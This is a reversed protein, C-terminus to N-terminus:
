TDDFASYLDSWWKRYKSPAMEFHKKFSINFHSLSKFGQIHAIDLISKAGDELMKKSADMKTKLFYAKLTMGMYQKFIRSIHVYSYHFNSLIEALTKGSNNKDHLANQIEKIREPANKLPNESEPSYIHKLIDQTFGIFMKFVAFRYEDTDPELLNIKLGTAVYNKYAKESIDISIPESNLLRTFLSDSVLDFQFKITQESVTLNIHSVDGSLSKIMHNDKPRILCLTKKSVVSANGNIEHQYAGSTVLMYEWFDHSHLHAYDSYSYLFTFPAYITHKKNKKMINM